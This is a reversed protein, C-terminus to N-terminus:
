RPLRRNTTVPRRAPPRKPASRPPQPSRQHDRALSLFRAALAPSRTSDEHKFFAFGRQTGLARARRCTNLLRADSCADQRPRLYVWDTTAFAAEAATSDPDLCVACGHRSLLDFTADVFWSAHRFEIAAPLGAPVVRLFARLRETDGHLYAPLQFLVAGLKDGLAELRRALQTTAEAADVLRLEHTIRRSAKIAFRFDAPVADAWGELVQTRPLRHFTNEIEVAPLHVAYYSLMADAKIGDPYFTGVWARDNYGSTGAYWHM